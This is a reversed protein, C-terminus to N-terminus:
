ISRGFTLTGLFNILVSYLLVLCLVWLSVDSVVFLLAIFILPMFDLSFRMGFQSFGTAFYVLLFSVFVFLTTFLISLFIAKEQERWYKKKLFLILFVTAPYVFFISNGELDKQLFPKQFTPYSPSLFFHYFNHPLYSLSFIKNDKQIQQYRPHGVQYTLGTQLINGFKAYNFFSFILFFVFSVGIFYLSIKKVHKKNTRELIIPYIYLIMYFLLSYRSLFALYFFVLSVVLLLTNKRNSLFKFYFVLSILIYLTAIIQEAQWIQGVASLFFNPSGFAFLSVVLLLHYFSATLHFYKKVEVLVIYLLVCNLIGALATYLSDSASLGFLMYFPLIFLVPAPGWYLYWKGKYQSLDFHMPPSVDIRGEFFSKLQYNYYNVTSTGAIDGHLATSFALYFLAIYFFVFFLYIRM